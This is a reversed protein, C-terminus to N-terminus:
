LLMCVPATLSPDVSKQTLSPGFRAAKKHTEVHNEYPKRKTKRHNEQPKGKNETHSGQPKGITEKKRGIAKRYFSTFFCSAEAATGAAGSM